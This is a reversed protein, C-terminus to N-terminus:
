VKLYFILITHFKYGGNQAKCSKLVYKKGLSIPPLIVMHNKPDHIIFYILNEFIQVVCHVVTKRIVLTHHQLIICPYFTM